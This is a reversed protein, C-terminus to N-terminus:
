FLFMRAEPHATLRALAVRGHIADSRDSRSWIAREPGQHAGSSAPVRRSTVCILVTKFLRTAGGIPAPPLSTTVRATSGKALLRAAGESRLLSVEFLKLSKRRAFPGMWPWCRATVTKNVGSDPRSQRTQASTPAPSSPWADFQRAM